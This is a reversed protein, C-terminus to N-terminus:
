QADGEAAARELLGRLLPDIDPVATDSAGSPQDIEVAEREDTAADRAAAECRLKWTWAILALFLLCMGLEAVSLSIVVDRM